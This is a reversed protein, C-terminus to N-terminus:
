SFYDSHLSCVKGSVVNWVESEHEIIEQYHNSKLEDLEDVQRQLVTLADRFSQLDLACTTTDVSLYLKYYESRERKNMNRLETERIIRSKEKLAKEYAASRDQHFLFDADRLNFM